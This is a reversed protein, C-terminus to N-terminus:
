RRGYSVDGDGAMWSVMMEPQSRYICYKQEIVMRVAAEDGPRPWSMTQTTQGRKCEEKVVRAFPSSSDSAHLEKTKSGEPSNALKAVFRKRQYDLLVEASALREEQMLLRKPTGRLAGPIFQVEPNLFQLDEQRYM